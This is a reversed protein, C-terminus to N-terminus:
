CFVFNLTPGSGHGLSSKQIRTDLRRSAVPSGTSAVPALELACIQAPNQSDVGCGVGGPDRFSRKNPSYISPPGSGNGEMTPGTGEM